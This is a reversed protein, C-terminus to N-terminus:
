KIKVIVFYEKFYKKLESDVLAREIAITAQKDKLNINTVKLLESLM